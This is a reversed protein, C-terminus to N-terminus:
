QTTTWGLNIIDPVHIGTVTSSPVLPVMSDGHGGLVFSTVDEISVKFEEALFLRFRASDLVGAMGVVISQPLGCADRLVGVMVDLPNTICIVFAKPCNKRIGEGVQRMVGTNIGILLDSSCVDSSWDSIRM